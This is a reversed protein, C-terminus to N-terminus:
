RQLGRTGSDPRPKQYFAAGRVVDGRRPQGAGWMSAAETNTMGTVAAIRSWSVGAHRAIQVTARIDKHTLPLGTKLLDYVMLEPVANHLHEYWEGRAGTVGDGIVAPPPEGHPHADNVCPFVSRPYLHMGQWGCECRARWGAVPPSDPAPDLDEIPKADTGVPQVRGVHEVAPGHGEVAANHVFIHQKM